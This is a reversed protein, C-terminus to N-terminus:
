IGSTDTMVLCSDQSRQVLHLKSHGDRSYSSFLGWNRAAVRSNGHYMGRAPLHPEIGRCQTCLLITNGILCTLLSSKRSLVGSLGLFVTVLRSSSQHWSLFAFYDTYGFDVCSSPIDSDQTSIRSSVSTGRRMQVPPIMDSQCSSLCVSNLAEFTVLVSVEQFNIPIGLYKQFSSLSAHDGM